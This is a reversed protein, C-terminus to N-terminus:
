ASSVWVDWPGSPTVMRGTAGGSEVYLSMWPLRWARNQRAVSVRSPIAPRTSTSFAKPLVIQRASRGRAAMSWRMTECLPGM